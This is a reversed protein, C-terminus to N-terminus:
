GTVLEAYVYGTQGQFSVIYWDGVRGSSELTTGGVAIGLSDYETGPGTRVNANMILTLTGGPYYSSDPTAPPATATPEAAPPATEQPAETPASPEVTWILGESVYVKAGNYEVQSWGDFTGTRHMQTGYPVNAEVPYGLGPGSRLNATESVVMVTDNLDDVEFDTPLPTPTPTPEPKTMTLEDNAAFGEVGNYVVRTWGDTVGTRELEADKPATTLVAADEDPAERINAAYALVYAVGGVDNIIPGTPAPTAAPRPTVSAAPPATPGATEAPPATTELDGGPSIVHVSETQEPEEPPLAQRNMRVILWLALALILVAAAILAALKWTEAGIRRRHEGTEPRFVRATETPRPAEDDNDEPIEDRLPEEPELNLECGCRGCFKMNGPM